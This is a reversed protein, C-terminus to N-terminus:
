FLCDFEAEMCILLRRDLGDKTNETSNLHVTTTNESLKVCYDIKITSKCDSPKFKLKAKCFSDIVDM